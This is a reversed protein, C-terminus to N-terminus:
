TSVEKTSSLISERGTNLKPNQETVNSKQDTSDSSSSPSKQSHRTSKILEQSYKSENQKIKKCSIKRYDPFIPM